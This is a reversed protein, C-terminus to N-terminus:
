FKLKSFLAMKSPTTRRTTYEKLPSMNAACFVAHPIFELTFREGNESLQFCISVCVNTACRQEVARSAYRGRSLHDIPGTDHM